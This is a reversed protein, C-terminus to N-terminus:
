IKYSLVLQFCPTSNSGLNMGCLRVINIPKYIYVKVSALTKVEKVM